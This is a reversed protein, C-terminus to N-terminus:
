RNVDSGVLVTMCDVTGMGNAVDGSETAGSGIAACIQDHGGLILLSGPEIGALEAASASLRGTCTGTSVPHPLSSSKFGSFDIADKWWDKKDIDFMGSRSALSYECIHESGLRYAIYDAVFCIKSTKEPLVRRIDALYRLKFVSFMPDFYQGTKAHFDAESLKMALERCCESGRTDIYLMFNSLPKDHKDLCVFSEGFSTISIADIKDTRCARAAESLVNIVSNFINDPELEYEGKHPMVMHYEAYAHGLIKLDENFVTCKVGSTGIDIGAALM